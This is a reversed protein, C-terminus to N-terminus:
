VCLRLEYSLKITNNDNNILKLINIWQQWLESDFLNILIFFDVLTQSVSALKTM